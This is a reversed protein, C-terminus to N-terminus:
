WQMGRGTYIRDHVGAWYLARPLAAAAAPAGINSTGNTMFPPLKDILAAASPAGVTELIAKQLKTVSSAIYIESAIGWLLGIRDIQGTNTNFYEKVPIGSPEYYLLGAEAEAIPIIDPTHVLGLYYSSGVITLPPDGFKITGLSLFPPLPEISAGKSVYWFYESYDDSIGWTDKEQEKTSMFGVAYGAYLNIGIGGTLGENIAGGSFNFEMREM